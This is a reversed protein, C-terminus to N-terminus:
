GEGVSPLPSKNRTGVKCTEEENIPSPFYTRGRWQHSLTPSLTVYPQQFDGM